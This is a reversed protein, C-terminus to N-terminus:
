RSTNNDRSRAQNFRKKAVPKQQSWSKKKHTSKRTADFRLKTRPELGPITHQELTQQTYKELRRMAEKDNFTAFSIAIGSKGARGTRGIRHVYDEASKPFDYNIVHSVNRIDIGRAVVNTAILIQTKGARIQSLKRNRENQKMDGHLASASFGDYRLKNALQEAGSKTASFIIAQEIEENELLHQLLHYKHQIDDTVYVRQEIKDVTLKEPTIDIREPSSLLKRAYQDLQKDFTATFLLTQREKPTEDAIMMIDDIFGMDLMRDAEDL